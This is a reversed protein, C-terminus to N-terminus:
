ARVESGEGAVLTAAEVLPAAMEEVLDALKQTWKAVQVAKVVPTDRVADIAALQVMTAIYKVVEGMQKVDDITAYDEAGVSAIAEEESMEEGQDGAGRRAAGRGRGRISTNIDRLVSVVDRLEATPGESAVAPSPLCVLSGVGFLVGLLAGLLPARWCLWLGRWTILM